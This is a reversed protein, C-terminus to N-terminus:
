PTVEPSAAAHVAERYAQADAAVVEAGDDITPAHSMLMAIALAGLWVVINDTVPKLRARWWERRELRRRRQNVKVVEQAMRHRVDSLHEIEARTLPLRRM